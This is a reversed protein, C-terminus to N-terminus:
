HFYFSYKSGGYREHQGKRGHGLAAVVELVVAEVAGDLANVGDHVFGAVVEVVVEFAAVLELVEDGLVVGFALAAVLHVEGDDLVDDEAGAVLVVAEAEGGELVDDVVLVADDAAGVVDVIGVVRQNFDVDLVGFALDLAAQTQLVVLHAADVLAAVVVLEVFDVFSFDVGEVGVAGDVFGNDVVAGLLFHLLLAPLVVFVAFGGAVGEVVVGLLLGLHEDGDVLVFVVRVAVPGLAGFVFDEAVAAEGVVGGDAGDLVKLRGGAAYDM